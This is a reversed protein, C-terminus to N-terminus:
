EHELEDEDLDLGDATNAAKQAALIREAAAKAQAITADKREKVTERYKVESGVAADLVATIIEDDVLDGAYSSKQLTATWFPPADTIRYKLQTLAYALFSEHSSAMAPNPGLIERYERDAAIRQMPTLFCRFRFTGAYTGMLTGQSQMEWTATNGEIILDSRVEVKPKQDSM